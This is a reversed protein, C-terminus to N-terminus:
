AIEWDEALIDGISPLWGPQHKGQANRIVFTPLYDEDGSLQAIYVYQGAGNWGARCISHKDKLKELIESFNMPAPRLAATVICIYANDVSIISIGRVYACEGRRDAEFAQVAQQLASESSTAKGVYEKEFLQVGLNYPIQGQRVFSTAGSIVQLIEQENLIRNTM